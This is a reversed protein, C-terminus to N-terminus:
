STFFHKKIHDTYVQLNKYTKANRNMSNDITSQNFASIFAYATADFVSIKDGFFYQQEGLTHSLAQFTQNTIDHIEKDTHRGLGQAHIAKIAKKRLMYPIIKNLPFPINEFYAKKVLQWTEEHQWRSWYLSWYLNEDLSKGLLYAQAKQQLSLHSDLNIHYKNILHEIIFQSDAILVGEDIIYPLKGKPAKQYNKLQNITNYQIDAFRLFTHVKTVFPSADIVGFKEGLGYLKIM